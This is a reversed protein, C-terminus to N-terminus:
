RWYTYDVRLSDSTLDYDLDIVIATSSKVYAKLPIPPVTRSDAYSAIVKSVSGVSIEITDLASRIYATGPIPIDYQTALISTDASVVVSDTGDTATIPSNAKIRKFELDVGTKTKYVGVGAGAINSATNAEGSAASTTITITDNSNSISTAGAGVVVKGVYATGGTNVALVRNASPLTNLGTGGNTVAVTGTLGLTVLNPTHTVSINTGEGFFKWEVATAAANMGMFTNTIGLSSLGTIGVVGTSYQSLPQQTGALLVATATSLPPLSFTTTMTPTFLPKIAFNFGNTVGWRLEGTPDTIRLSGAKFSAATDVNQPLTLTVNGGIVSAAGDTVIVQNSTGVIDSLSQVGTGGRYTGLPSVWGITHAGGSSTITVVSDNVFTQSSSTLTNLSTIGSGGGAYGSDIRTVSNGNVYFLGRLGRSMLYGKSFSVLGPAALSDFRIGDNVFLTDVRRNQALAMGPFLLLLLLFKRM